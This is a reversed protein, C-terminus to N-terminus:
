IMEATRRIFTVPDPKGEPFMAQQLINPNEWAVDIAHRMEQLVQEETIGDQKAIAKIADQANM